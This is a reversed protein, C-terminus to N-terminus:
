LSWDRNTWMYARGQPLKDMQKDAYWKRGKDTVDGSRKVLGLEIAGSLHYMFGGLSGFHRFKDNHEILGKVIAATFCTPETM